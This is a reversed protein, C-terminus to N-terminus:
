RKQKQLISGRVHRGGLLIRHGSACAEVWSSARSFVRTITLTKIKKIKKLNNNNVQCCHHGLVVVFM